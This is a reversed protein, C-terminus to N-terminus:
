IGLDNYFYNVPPAKDYGRYTSKNRKKKNQLIWKFSLNKNLYINQMDVM